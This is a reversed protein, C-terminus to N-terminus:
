IWEKKEEMDPDLRDLAWNMAYLRDLEKRVESFLPDKDETHIHKSVPKDM